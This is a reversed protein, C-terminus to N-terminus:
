KYYFRPLSRLDFYHKVKIKQDNILNKLVEIQNLINEKLNFFYFIGKKTKLHIEYLEEKPYIFYDIPVKDKFDQYIKKIAKITQPSAVQKSLSIKRKFDDFVYILNLGKIFSSEKFAIGNKDVSFCKLDKQCWVLVEKRKKLYVKLIRDKFNKKFKIEEIEPLLIKLYKEKILLINNLSIIGCLKKQNIKELILNEDIIGQPIIQVEKIKFFGSFFFFWGFVILFFLILGIFFIIQRM